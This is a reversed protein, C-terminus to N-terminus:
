RAPEEYIIQEAHEGARAWDAVSRCTWTLVPLGKARQAAAFGSPLDRIDYALFDPRARWAALHRAVAGRWRRGAETVVLGRLTEPAHRAFWHGVEPNFSMVGVPGTYGELLRAVARSLGSPDRGPAKVEILLPARGRILALVEELTPITERSGRLRIRALAEATHAALPGSAETLRELTSDHFVMATGDAAAQVDLEIGRGAAIAAEFAARSNEVRGPKHLGRHAFPRSILGTLRSRRSPSSPM